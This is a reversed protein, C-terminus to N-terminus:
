GSDRELAELEAKLQELQEAKEPDNQIAEIEAMISERTILSGLNGSPWGSQVPIQIYIRQDTTKATRANRTLMWHSLIGSNSVQMRCSGAENNTSSMWEGTFFTQVRYKPPLLAEHWANTVFDSAVIDVRDSTGLNGSLQFYQVTATRFCRIGFDANASVDYLPTSGVTVIWLKDNSMLWQVAGHNDGTNPETCTHTSGYPVNALETIKDPRGAGYFSLPMGSTPLDSLNDNDADIMTSNAIHDPGLGKKINAM